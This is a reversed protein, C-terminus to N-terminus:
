VFGVHGCNFGFLEVVLHYFSACVCFVNFVHWVRLLNYYLTTYIEFRAFSLQKFFFFFFSLMQSSPGKLLWSALFACWFPHSLLWESWGEGPSIALIKPGIGLYAIKTMRLSLSKPLLRIHKTISFSYLHQQFWNNWFSATTFAM